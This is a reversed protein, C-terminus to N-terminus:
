NEVEWITVPGLLGSELLPSDKTYHRHTAFTYRGSTRPTGDKLWQPWQGDRIGDDPLYEDGILRNPWRNVVEIELQNGKSKVANTIDMSWPFTWVVGLDCGNLRVRAMDKVSGLDMFLRKNKVDPKDFTQRYVATGSYYKIGPDAHQTWDALQAFTTQRPGGWAPDFSVTWPATLTAIQKMEPFNKKASTKPQSTKAPFVVFYAQHIDFQLPVVTHDGDVAYEPLPRMDGTMPDWLEPRRDTVRFICEATVPQNVRNSVFYIDCDDMMRHTYRIQGTNSEFNVSVNMSALINATYGYPPYLNDAQERLEKSWIIKGKGFFRTTQTEPTEDTGWIEQVLTQIEADCDPYNNLSPSRKPPLGVATAGANVLDRIKKLLEPTMTEFYPLVLLRYSAASPFVVCGNKVTASYLLSPPCSDFNYGKRDPLPTENRFNGDLLEGELASNPACFVHPAGEPTLYLIDAVTRGQQLMFQCRSVYRHYVDAMQWWTQNRDWHVGNWGMTMGPRLRDDLPQHVFTHYMLRNIGSALSWDTQNKMSGPHQRWGDSAATFAEAPVVPQGLLHSVSSAEIAAFATNYGYGVSWFEAMPMTAVSALELDATPNMDYPEISLGMGYRKAYRRIHGAYNELILEQSTQRLDWLFRESIERSQVITGIYVPYFPQPDYGRRHIFEERFFRRTWNQAGMEWSDLHLMQLGGQPLAKKFGINRFLKETFHEFHVNLAITDFKDVEFGRGPTPSMQTITGNHRSGFRMVTWKGEPVNWTITGDPQLSATLDIIKEMDVAQEGPLAASFTLYPKVHPVSSYPKRYYLAKEEIETIQFYETGTGLDAGLTAAGTPFILVAVDEYSDERQVTIEPTYGMRGFFPRKLAPKPLTITRQGAGSVEVSSAVLHQMSQAAEIWPGGSGTWGPGVGLTIGIGLRECEAVAHGFMDMWEDSMFDVTGRPVGVNVELYVLNGIEARKMAELDKTMAEKSLNGDMFYWYVGPRVSDPHNVFGSALSSICRKCSSGSLFFVTIVFIVVAACTVSSVKLFTTKM